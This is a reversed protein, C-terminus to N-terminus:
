QLSIIAGFNGVNLSFLDDSGKRIESAVSPLENGAWVLGESSRDASEAVIDHALILYTTMRYHLLRSCRWEDMCDGVVIVISTVIGMFRFILIALYVRQIYFMKPNGRDLHPHGSFCLKPICNSIHHAISWFTDLQVAHLCSPIM